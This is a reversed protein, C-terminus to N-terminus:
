RSQLGTTEPEPLLALIEPVSSYLKMENDVFVPTGYPRNPCKSTALTSAYSARLGLETVRGFM